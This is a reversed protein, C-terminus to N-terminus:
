EDIEANDGGSVGVGDNAVGTHTVNFTGNATLSGGNVFVGNYININSQNQLGSINWSTGDKITSEIGVTVGSQAVIDGGYVYIATGNPTKITVNGSNFNLNGASVIGLNDSTLTVGSGAAFNIISGNTTAYIATNTLKTTDDSLITSSYSLGNIDVQGQVVYLGHSDSASSLNVTVQASSDTEETLKGNADITYGFGIQGSQSYMIYVGSSMPLDKIKQRLIDNM